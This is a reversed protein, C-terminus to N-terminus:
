HHKTYIYIYLQTNYNPSSKCKQVVQRPGQYLTGWESRLMILELIRFNMTPIININAM